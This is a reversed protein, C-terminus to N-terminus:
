NINDKLQWASHQVKLGMENWKMEFDSKTDKIDEILKPSLTFINTKDIINVGSKFYNIDDTAFHFIGNNKLKNSMRFVFESSIMRHGKHRDKPWPDPCLVHLRDISKDPMCRCILHWAEARILHMNQIKFRINRKALKRLRGLMVDVAIIYKDPYKLALESTFSGKGCGLDVEVFQNEPIEINSYNNAVINIISDITQNDAMKKRIYVKDLKKNIRL